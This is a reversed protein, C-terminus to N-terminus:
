YTRMWDDKIAHACTGRKQQVTRTYVERYQEWYDKKSTTMIQGFVIEAMPSQLDKDAECLVFKVYPWVYDRAVESAMKLDATTRRSDDSLSVESGGRGTMPFNVTDTQAAVGDMNDNLVARSGGAVSVDTVRSGLTNQVPASRQRPVLSGFSPRASAGAAVALTEASNQFELPLFM